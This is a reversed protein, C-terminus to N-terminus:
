LKVFRIYQGDAILTYQGQQFDEINLVDHEESRSEFVVRGAVDLVVLDTCGGKIYLASSAPNPFVNFTPKIADNQAAVINNENLVAVADLDFGGSEFATPYPDNILNGLYDYSGYTANISGVVDIVRVYLVSDLNINTSDTIDELDFPTGYGQRYKGALNYVEEPNSYGFSGTQTNEEILCTSPIRIFHLGDSSVEVHAFELYDDSFSNEFVAFDAGVGNKIPYEFGLTIIGADGLSIVDTSNGEAVFLAATSDGYSAYVGPLAIDEYGRQFDLVKTAWSVIISSDKHIATTGIQGAAPAFQGNVCFSLLFVVTVLIRTM